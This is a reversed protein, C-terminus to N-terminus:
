AVRADPKVTVLSGEIVSDKGTVVYVDGAKLGSLIQARVDDTLGTTVSRRHAHNDQIVWVYFDGVTSSLADKPIIIGSIQSTTIQGRAFGGNPLMGSSNPISIHVRYLKTSAGAVPIIESIRGTFTRGPLADVVTSVSDGVKVSSIAQEPVEAEFYVGRTPVITMLTTTPAVSSGITAPRTDVVGSIPSLIRADALQDRAFQVQARAQGVAAAAAQVDQRTMAYQATGAQASGLAAQMQRVQEQAQLVDDRSMARRQVQAVALQLASQMQRVQQEAIAVQQSRSGAQVLSAQQRANALATQYVQLSYHADDRQQQSIAGENYLTDMRNFNLQAHSLDAQAREVALGAQAREETRSGERVQSLNQQASTLNSQAQQVGTDAQADEIRASTVMQQYHAQAAALNARATQIAAATQVDKLNVGSRSQDYRAQAAALAAETQQLQSALDSTDLEAVLQGVNVRDGTTVLLSIVKGPIKSTLNVQNDTQLQGVVPLTRQMVSVQATLVSVPVAPAAPAASAASPASKHCGSLTVAACLVAALAGVNKWETRLKM